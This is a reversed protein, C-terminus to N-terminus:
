VTILMGKSTMNLGKTMRMQQLYKVLICSNMNETLTGNCQIHHIVFLYIKHFKGKFRERKKDDTGERQAVNETDAALEHM